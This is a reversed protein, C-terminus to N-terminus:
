DERVFRNKRAGAVLRQPLPPCAAAAAAPPQAAAPLAGAHRLVARRRGGPHDPRVGQAQDPVPNYTSNIAGTLALSEQPVRRVRPVLFQAV